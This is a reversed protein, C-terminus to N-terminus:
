PTRNQGDKDDAAVMCQKWEEFTKNEPDFDNNDLMNGMQEWLVRWKQDPKELEKVCYYFAIGANECDRHWVDAEKPRQPDDTVLVSTLPHKKSAITLERLQLGWEFQALDEHPLPQVQIGRKQAQVASNVLSEYRRKCFGGQDYLSLKRLSSPLSMAFRGSKRSPLLGMDICIDDLVEFPRLTGLVSPCAFITLKRLTNKAKALLASRILFADFKNALREPLDCSYAFSQLCDFGMLFDHLPKAPVRCEWLELNTINSSPAFILSVDDRDECVLRRASLSKASPINAYAKAEKLHFYVGSTNICITSLKTLTPASVHPLYSFMHSTWCREGNNSVRPFRLSRLNPLLPLLIALLIDENGRGIFDEYGVFTNLGAPSLLESNKSAAVFLDLDEASYPPNCNRQNGGVYDLSVNKIYRGIEPNVLVKRLTRAITRFGENKLTTYQRIFLRHKESASKAVSHFRRCSQAFNELDEPLIFTIVELILEEALGIFHAMIASSQPANPQFPSLSPPHYLIATNTISLSFKVLFSFLPSLLSSSPTLTKHLM